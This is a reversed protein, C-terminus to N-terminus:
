FYAAVGITPVVASQLGRNLLAFLASGYAHFTPSFAVQLGIGANMTHDRSLAPISSQALSFDSAPDDPSVENDLAFLFPPEEIQLEGLLDFAFFVKSAVRQSFGAAFKLSNSNDGNWFQAGFNVYPKFTDLEDYEGILMLRTGFNGSGLVNGDSRGVPIRMDVVAAMSGRTWSSPFRYKARVALTNLYTESGPLEQFASLPPSVERGGIGQCNLGGEEPPAYRCGSHDGEVRFTTNVNEIQLRVIPVALGVDLRDTIGYTGYLTFVSANIDFPMTVAILDGGGNQEFAFELDSLNEGRIKSLNFYSFNTGALFQGQGVTASSETFIPTFGTVMTAIRGDVYEADLSPPTLPISALNSEIFNSIGPALAQRALDAALSFPNNSVPEFLCIAYLDGLAAELQSEQAQSSPVIVLTAFVIVLLFTSRKNCM